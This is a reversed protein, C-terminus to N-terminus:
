KVTLTRLYIKQEKTIRYSEIAKRITKNHVWDSLRKNELYPIISAYQKSLATAFYWAIMMNVYYEDSIIGAVAEPYEHSFDEDLFHKMLMGIGFRITYTKDDSIWRKIDSILRDKNKGLVKPSMTDCTAWNDVFPLFRDLATICEDYDKITEILFAHLNNEEYYKHPLIELFADKHESKSFEKAFKRLAPTRVGIIRDKEINPILKAHFDRYGEDKLAFLREQVYKETNNM